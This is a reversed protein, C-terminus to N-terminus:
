LKLGLAWSGAAQPPPPPLLCASLQPFAELELSLAMGCGEERSVLSLDRSRITVEMNFDTGLEM